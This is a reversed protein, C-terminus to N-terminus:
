ASLSVISDLYQGIFEDQTLHGAAARVVLQRLAEEDPSRDVGNIHLVIVGCVLATRKNGDLFAHGVTLAYTTLAAIVKPDHYSPGRFEVNNRVRELIASLSAGPRYGALGGDRALLKEHIDAVQQDTLFRLEQSVM